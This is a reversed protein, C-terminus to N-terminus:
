ILWPRLRLNQAGAQQGPDVLGVRCQRLATGPSPQAAKAGARLKAAQAGAPAALGTPGLPPPLWGEGRRGPGLAGLSPM